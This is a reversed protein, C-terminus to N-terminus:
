IHILSLTCSGNVRIADSLQIIRDASALSCAPMWSLELQQLRTLARMAMTLDFQNSDYNATPPGSKFSMNLLSLTEMATLSAVAHFIQPWAPRICAKAPLDKDCLSLHTLNTLCQVAETVATGADESWGSSVCNLSLSRLKGMSKLMSPMCFPMECDYTTISKRMEISLKTLTSLQKLSELMDSYPVEFGRQQGDDLRCLSLSRLHCCRALVTAIGELVAKKHNHNGRNSGSLELDCLELAELRSTAALPMLLKQVGDFPLCIGRLSVSLPATSSESDLTTTGTQHKLQQTEQADGAVAAKWASLLQELPEAAEISAEDDVNMSTLRLIQRSSNPLRAFWNLTATCANAAYTSCDLELMGCKQVTPFTAQIATSHQELPLYKLYTCLAVPACQLVGVLLSSPLEQLVQPRVSVSLYM